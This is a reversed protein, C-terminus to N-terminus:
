PELNLSVRFLATPQLKGKFQMPSLPVVDFANHLQNYTSQSIWVEYAPVAATIRSAINTTDGIATYTYRWRAGSNGVIAPGTNIGVGFNFWREERRRQKHYRFLAQQISIGAQVARVAHDPQDNHTNFIAMVNDGQFQNVTGGYASIADVVISLHDNLLTMVYEAPLNAVIATFDRADAFLISVERLEGGLEPRLTGNVLAEAVDPPLYHRLLFDLQENLKSLQRRLLRLENHSQMLEQIYQGQETVDAILVIFTANLYPPCPMATLTFYRIEGSSTLRNVNEVHIPFVPSAGTDSGDLGQGILEPLLDLLHMGLMDSRPVAPWAAFSEDHEILHYGADFLAYAIKLERLIARWFQPDNM